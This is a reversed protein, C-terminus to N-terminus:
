QNHRDKQTEHEDYEHPQLQACRVDKSIHHVKRHAYCVTVCQLVNHTYRCVKSLHCQSAEARYLQRWEPGTSGRTM